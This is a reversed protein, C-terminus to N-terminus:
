LYIERGHTPQLVDSILTQRYLQFFVCWQSFSKVRSNHCAYRGFHCLYRVYKKHAYITNRIKSDEFKDPNFCIGAPFVKSSSILM